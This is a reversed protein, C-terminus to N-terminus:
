VKYNSDYRVFGKTKQYTLCLVYSVPNRYRELPLNVYNTRSWPGSWEFNRTRIPLRSLFLVNEQDFRRM